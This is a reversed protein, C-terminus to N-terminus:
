KRGRRRGEPVDEDIEIEEIEIEAVLDEEIEIEAVLDEEIEDEAVEEETASHIPRLIDSQDTGSSFVDVGALDISNIHSVDYAILELGRGLNSPQFFQLYERALDSDAFSYGWFGVDKECAQKILTFDSAWNFSINKKEGPKLSNIFTQTM